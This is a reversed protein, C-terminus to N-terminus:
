EPPPVPNPQIEFARVAVGLKRDDSSQPDRESPAVTRPVTVTVRTVGPRTRAPLSIRICRRADGQGFELPVSEGDCTARMGRTLEADPTKLMEVTATAPQRRDVEVEFTFSPQPGSHSKRSSGTGSSFNGRMFLRSSVRSSNSLIIAALPSSNVSSTM